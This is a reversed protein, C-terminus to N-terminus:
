FPGVVGVRFFWEDSVDIDSDLGAAAHEFEISRNSLLGIEGTIRRDDRPSYTVGAATRYSELTIQKRNYSGKERIRYTTSEWAWGVHASWMEDWRYCIRAEPLTAEIRLWDAPAWVAGIIPMFFREFWPRMQVGAIGSLTPHFTMVGAVSFPLAFSNLALEEIDSYIGPAVRVQVASGNIYRWTWGADVALAVLQDPLQLQASGLFLTTDLDLGVDIDGCYVDHFYGLELSGDIKAIRSQGYGNFRSNMIYSLGLTYAPSPPEDLIQCRSATTNWSSAQAWVHSAGLSLLLLYALVTKM